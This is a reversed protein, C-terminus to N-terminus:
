EKRYKEMFARLAQKFCEVPPRVLGAGIQGVGPDKHAIGTNIIPLLDEELVARIDIGTPTGRFGLVPIGYASNEGVTIRYMSTTYNLADETEGGVFQVIPIACAMAFGGIGSTETISSDGMDPNADEDSYGPFLLGEVMPAPATFWQEGLGSVRIGFTTGNRTMATVITSYPIEAAADMTAKAAAMSLNLFFHENTSIFRLARDVQDKPLDVSFFDAALDRLLLATAAKNRNHCEDGMQLAQSVQPKVEVPGHEHLVAKLVGQLEDRMWRLHTLVEDSYAGFRLVKGLGENLSSFGRTGADRNEVVFGPMSPPLVGAMPGVAGYHHCPEFHIAGSAALQEAEGPTSAWGEYICAGIIGGRLPGCMEHWDVPPGAHLITKPTPLDLVERAPAVDVWVPDAALIRELAKDNAAKIQPAVATLKELLGLIETDGGAPPRWDVQYATGGADSINEAFSGVGVSAIKLKQEFLESIKSM